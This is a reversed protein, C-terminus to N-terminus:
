ACFHHSPRAFCIMYNEISIFYRHTCHNNRFKNERREESFATSFLYHCSFGSNIEQGGTGLAAAPGNEIRCALRLSHSGLRRGTVVVTVRESGFAPLVGSNPHFEVHLDDDGSGDESGLGHFLSQHGHESAGAGPFQLSPPSTARNIAQAAALATVNANSNANANGASNLGGASRM